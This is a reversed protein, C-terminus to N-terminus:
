AVDSGSDSAEEDDENGYGDEEEESGEQEGKDADDEKELAQFMMEFQAKREDLMQSTDKLAAMIVKRTMLGVFPVIGSTGVVDLVHNAGFLKYHLTLPSERKNPVDVDTKISPHQNLIISCMLTPFPIPFKVVDTKAHKVTQEFIYTTFDMKAKTGVVYIFKTLGTTIDSSHTTSVWNSVGIRNLIAYKVSLKGSSIKGKKPWVKVRNSTIEKCVKNNTVELEPFDTEEIWLVKNIINPSFNVCEGRVFVKHYEKSM